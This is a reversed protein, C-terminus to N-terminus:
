VGGGNVAHPNYNYRLTYDLWQRSKPEIMVMHGQAPVLLQLVVAAALCLIIAPRRTMTNASFRRCCLLPLLLPPLKLLWAVGFVLADCLQAHGV